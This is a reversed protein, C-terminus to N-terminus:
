GCGAACRACEATMTWSGQRIVTLPGEDDTPPEFHDFYSAAREDSLTYDDGHALRRARIRELAVERPTAVYITEPEVGLPRLLDRYEDRTRRSWFSYDLVVDSGDTVVQILRDRLESEIEAHVDPPLPM